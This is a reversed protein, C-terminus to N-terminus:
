RRWYNIWLNSNFVSLTFLNNLINSIYNKISIQQCMLITAPIKKAYKRKYKPMLESRHIFSNSIWKKSCKVSKKKKMKEYLNSRFGIHFVSLLYWRAIFIQYWFIREADECPGLPGRQIRPHSRHGDYHRGRAAVVHQGRSTVVHHERPRGRLSTIVVVFM